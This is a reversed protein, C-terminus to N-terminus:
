NKYYIDKNKWLINYHTQCKKQEDRYEPYEDIIIIGQVSIGNGQNGVYRRVVSSSKYDYSFFKGFMIPGTPDLPSNGYYNLNINIVIQQIANWLKNNNPKAMMFGNYVAKNPESPYESITVDTPFREKETLAILKFGNVCKFKIDLYVGGNIYLVCYRWLEAKYAGPKLKDFAQLVDIEFNNKIFKRCDNDDFLFYEFENNTEKLTEINKKMCEPLDKTYWTQYIKLPIISEYKDKIVFQYNKKPINTYKKKNLKNIFNM